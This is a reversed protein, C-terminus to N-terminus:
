VKRFLARRKAELRAAREATREEDLRWVGDELALCSGRRAGEPLESLPVDAYELADSELVALTGGPAEELRDVIYRGDEM